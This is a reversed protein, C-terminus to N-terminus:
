EIIFQQRPMREQWERASVMEHGPIKRIEKFDNKWVKIPMVWNRFVLVLTVLCEDRFLHVSVFHVDRLEWMHIIKQMKLSM